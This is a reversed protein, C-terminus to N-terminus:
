EGQCIERGYKLLMDRDLSGIDIADIYKELIDGKALDFKSQLDDRNIKETIPKIEEFELYQVDSSKLIERRMDVIETSNIQEVQIIVFNKSLDHKHVENAPIILHKPSFTNEIYKTELTETDLIVIHKKQHAEHFSLQLPSGVYEIRDNLKQEGHYHGLFVKEWGAFVSTDVKVMDKEIEVSIDSRINHVKNLQANDVALHGCLIRSRKKFYQQIIEIPNRTYPLFDITLGEINLAIPENILHFNPLASFPAVSNVDWKDNFWMDHNGVLSYIDIDQYKELIKFVRYYVLTEIKQRNQFLDGLFLITQVEKEIATEFVWNFAELCDELRKLKGKHPHIHADSFILLKSM